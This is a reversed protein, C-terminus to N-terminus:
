DLYDDEPLETNWQPCKHHYKVQRFLWNPHFVHGCDLKIFQDRELRRYNYNKDADQYQMEEDDLDNLCVDCYRFRYETLECLSFTHKDYTRERYKHFFFSSGYHMQMYLIIAHMTSLTMFKIVWISDFGKIIESNGLITFPHSVFYVSILIIWIPHIFVCRARFVINAVIPLIYINSLLLLCSNPYM